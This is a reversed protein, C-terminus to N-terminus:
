RTVEIQITGSAEGGALNKIKVPLKKIGASTDSSVVINAGFSGDSALRLRIQDGGVDSLDATVDTIDELRGPNDIRVSLATYNGAPLKDPSASSSLFIPDKEIEISTKALALWGKKNAATVLLEKNGLSVDTNVTSQVTYIGDGAVADGWLGNDVLTMNSLKGLGSLDAKVGSINKIGGPDAVSALVEIITRGDPPVKKPIAKIFNIVPILRVRNIKTIDYGVNWNLLNSEKKKVAQSKSLLAIAEARTLQKEAARSSGAALVIFILAILIKKM